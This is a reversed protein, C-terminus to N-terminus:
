YPRTPESIHILSLNSTSWTSTISSGPAYIDLCSGYNSFSSRSDSSTTSGVTIANAARAPSYNCANRNDNGAAVVMTVGQAVVANVANDLASSAGGGLSMNAVAPKVHNDGVWDVGAIVGSNSGSGNCGLVRVAYIEVNKAVGYVSAGITGAVHTGHGQCDNTGNGDNISTFGSNGRNGFQNHTIRVGTDVVYANVGTGDADYNYTNNLPLSAQDIRDLGWTANTQTANLSVVRDAEIFAVRPDKALEVVDDIAKSNLVMGNISSDYTRVMEGKAFTAMDIAMERVVVKRAQEISLSPGVMESVQESVVADKFVIIYQGPIKNSLNFGQIMSTQIPEAGVSGNQALALQCSAALTVVTLTKSLASKLKKNPSRSGIDLKKM